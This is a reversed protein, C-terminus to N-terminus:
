PIERVSTIQIKKAGGMRSARAVIEFPTVGISLGAEMWEM